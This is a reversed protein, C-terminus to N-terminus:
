VGDACIQRKASLLDSLNPFQFVQKRKSEVYQQLIESRLNKSFISLIHGWNDTFNTTADWFM